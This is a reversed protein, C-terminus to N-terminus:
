RVVNNWNLCYNAWSIINRFKEMDCILDKRNYKSVEFLGNEELKVLQDLCVLGRCAIIAIYRSFNRKNQKRFNTKEILKYTENLISIYESRLNTISKEITALTFVGEQYDEYIDFIDNALQLLYGVLYLMDKELDSINNSLAARYCLISLGAKKKTIDIIEERSINPDTQKKSLIQASYVKLAYEKILNSNTNSLLKLCFKVFLQENSNKCLEITPHTILEMIHKEPTDKEDFFDDFLGTLGGLYTLSEKEPCTMKVGRLFCLMEGLIPVGIGYYSKIKNFDKENLSQDKGIKAEEIDKLLTKKIFKKQRYSFRLISFFLIPYKIINEIYNKLKM